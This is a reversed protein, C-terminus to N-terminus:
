SVYGRCGFCFVICHIGVVTAAADADAAAAAAFSL